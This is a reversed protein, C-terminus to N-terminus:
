ASKKRKSSGSSKSAKSGSSKSSSSSKSSKKKSTSKKPSGGAAEKAAKPMRAEALSKELADMLSTVKQEAPEATETLVLEEGEAKAEILHEVAERYEDHYREPEFDSALADILREAVKLEKDNVEAEDPLEDAIEDAATVEDAYHMTHLTLVRGVPRIAALYQKQRMVFTAIAVKGSDAMAHLLLAYGRAGGEGPLLHYTREYYIPDIAALDIFDTIEISRGAEPKLKDLEEDQVLVYQDPAVEFGRGADKFDYEEGTEPCYLKRRLRCKGDASLMHFHVTKERVATVLKVPVNVLGFSIAGSWLSRPM